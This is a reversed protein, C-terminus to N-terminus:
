RDDDDIEVALPVFVSQKVRPYPLKSGMVQRWVIRNLAETPAADPTGSDIVKPGCGILLLAFISVAIRFVIM